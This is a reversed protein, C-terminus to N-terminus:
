WSPEEEGLCLADQHHQQQRRNDDEDNQHREEDQEASVGLGAPGPGDDEHGDPQEVKDVATHKRPFKSMRELRAAVRAAAVARM